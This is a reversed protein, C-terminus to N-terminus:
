NLETLHARLTASSVFFFVSPFFYRPYFRLGIGVLDHPTILGIKLVDVASAVIFWQILNRPYGVGGKPPM